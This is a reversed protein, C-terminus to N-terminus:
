GLAAEKVAEDLQNRLEEEMSIDQVTSLLDMNASYDLIFPIVNEGKKAAITAKRLAVSCNNRLVTILVEGGESQFLKKIALIKDLEEALISVKESKLDPIAGKIEVLTKSNKKKIM